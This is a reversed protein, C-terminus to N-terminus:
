RCMYKYSGGFQFNPLSQPGNGDDYYSASFEHGDKKDILTRVFNKGSRKM